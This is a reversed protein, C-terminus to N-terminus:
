RRSSITFTGPSRPIKFSADPRSAVYTVSVTGDGNNQFTATFSFKEKKQSRSSITGKGAVVVSEAVPDIAQRATFKYEYESERITPDTFQLLTKQSCNDRNCRVSGEHTGEGIVNGSLDTIEIEAPDTFVVGLFVFDDDPPPQEPATQRVPGTLEGQHALAPSMRLLGVSIFLAAFGSIVVLLFSRMKIFRM